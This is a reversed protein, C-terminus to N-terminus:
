VQHIPFCSSVSRYSSAERWIHDTALHWGGSELHSMLSRICCGRGVRVEEIERLFEQEGNRRMWGM